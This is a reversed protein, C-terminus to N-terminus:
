EDSGRFKFGPTFTQADIARHPVMSSFDSLCLTPESPRLPANVGAPGQRSRGGSPGLILRFWLAWGIFNRVQGGETRSKEGTHFRFGMSSKRIEAKFNLVQTQNLRAQRPHDQVSASGARFTVEYGQWCALLRGHGHIGVAGARRGPLYANGMIKGPSSALQQSSKTSKSWSPTALASTEALFIKEFWHEAGHLDVAPYQRLPASGRHERGRPAIRRWSHHPRRRPHDPM